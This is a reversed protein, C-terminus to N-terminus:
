TPQASEDKKRRRYEFKKLTEFFTDNVMLGKEECFYYIHDKYMRLPFEEKKKEIYIIYEESIWKRITNNVALVADETIKNARDKFQDGFWIRIECQYKKSEYREPTKKARRYKKGSCKAAHTNTYRSTDRIIAGLAMGTRDSGRHYLQTRNLFFYCNYELPVTLYYL